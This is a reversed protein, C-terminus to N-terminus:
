KGGAIAGFINSISSTPFAKRREEEDRLLNSNLANINNNEAQGVSQALKLMTIPDM